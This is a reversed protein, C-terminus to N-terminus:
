AVLSDMISLMDWRDPLALMLEGDPDTDPGNAAVARAHIRKIMPFASKYWSGRMSVLSRAAGDFSPPPRTRACSAGRPMTDAACDRM